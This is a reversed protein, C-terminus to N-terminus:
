AFNAVGQMWIRGKFRRGPAPEGLLDVSNVIVRFLIDNCEVMMDWINEGTVQNKMSGVERIEGIMLYQDSELGSPMFTSDVISYVDERSVRNNVKSYTEFDDLTLSEIAKEDGEQAARLLSNRQASSVRAKEKQMETKEVPLLITGDSALASLCVSTIRLDSGQRDFRSRYELPNLLYFILSIGVRYEDLMGAFTEKEAHRQISCYERSSVVQSEAYPYYYDVTLHDDDGMEGYMAVGIGPAVETKKECLTTYRDIQVFRTSGARNALTELLAKVEIEKNYM